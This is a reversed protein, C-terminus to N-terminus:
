NYTFQSTPIILCLLGRPVQFKWAARVVWDNDSFTLHSLTIRSAAGVVEFVDGPLTKARKNYCAVALFASLYDVPIDQAVATSSVKDCAVVESRTATLSAPFTAWQSDVRAHLVFGSIDVSFQGHKAVGSLMELAMFARIPSASACAAILNNYNANCQSVPVSLRATCPTTVRGVSVCGDRCISLRSLITAPLIHTGAAVIRAIWAKGVVSHSSDGNALFPSVRELREESVHTRFREIARGNPSLVVVFPVALAVTAPLCLFLLMVVLTGTMVQRMVSHRPGYGLPRTAYTHVLIGQKLANAASPADFFSQGSGYPFAPKAIWFM